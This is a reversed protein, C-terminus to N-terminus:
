CRKNSFNVILRQIGPELKHLNELLWLCSSCHIQPIYFSVHTQTDNRFLILQQTISEEDLFAFKDKRIEIRQNIGPQHTLDYYECLQHQQLLEFVLKCGTCCFNKEALTIDTNICAEGCHYCVTQAHKYSYIPM